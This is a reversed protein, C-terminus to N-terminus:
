AHAHQREDRAAAGDRAAPNERAAPNAVSAPPLDDCDTSLAIARQADLAALRDVLAARITSAPENESAARRDVVRGRRHRLGDASELLCV